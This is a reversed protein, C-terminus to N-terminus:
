FDPRVEEKLLSRGDFPANALGTMRRFGLEWFIRSIRSIQPKVRGREEDGM